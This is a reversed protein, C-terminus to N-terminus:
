CCCVNKKPLPPDTCHLKSPEWFARGALAGKGEGELHLFAGETRSSIGASCLKKGRPKERLRRYLDKAQEERCFFCLDGASSNLNSVSDSPSPPPPPSSVSFSHLHCKSPECIPSHFRAAEALRYCLLSQRSDVDECLHRALAVVSGVEKLWNGGDAGQPMEREQGFATFNPNNCSFSASSVVQAAENM